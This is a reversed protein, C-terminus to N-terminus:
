HESCPVTAEGLRIVVARPGKGAECLNGPMTVAQNSRLVGRQSSLQHPAAYVPHHHLQQRVRDSLLLLLPQRIHVCLSGLYSLFPRDPTRAPLHGRPITLVTFAQPQRRRSASLTETAKCPAVPLYAQCRVTNGQRHFPYEEEPRWTGGQTRTWSRSNM